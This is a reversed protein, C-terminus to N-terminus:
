EPDAEQPDPAAKGRSWSTVKLNTVCLWLEELGGSRLVELCFAAWQEEHGM